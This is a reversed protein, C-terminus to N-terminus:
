VVGGRRPVMDALGRPDRPVEPRPPDLMTGFLSAFISSAEQARRRAEGNRGEAYLRRIETAEELVARRHREPVGMEVLDRDRLRHKGAANFLNRLQQRARTRDRQDNTTM